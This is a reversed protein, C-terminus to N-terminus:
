TATSSTSAHRPQGRAGPQRLVGDAHVHEHREVPARRRGLDDAGDACRGAGPCGRPGCDRRDHPEAPTGEEPQGGRRRQHDRHRRQGRDDPHRDCRHGLDPEGDGDSRRRERECWVTRRRQPLLEAPTVGARCRTSTLWATPPTPPRSRSRTAAEPFAKRRGTGCTRGPITTPTMIRHLDSGRTAPATWTPSSSGASAGALCGSGSSSYPAVRSCSPPASSSADTGGRDADTRIFRRLALWGKELLGVSAM